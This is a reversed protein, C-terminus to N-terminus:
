VYDVLFFTRISKPVEVTIQFENLRKNQNVNDYQKKIVLKLSIVPKNGNCLHGASSAPGLKNGGNVDEGVMDNDSEILQFRSFNAIKKQTLLTVDKSPESHSHLSLFVLKLLQKRFALKDVSLEAKYTDSNLVKRYVNNYIERIVM